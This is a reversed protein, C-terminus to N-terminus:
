APPTIAASIAALLGECAPLLIHYVAEFGAEDGFYPDPVDLRADDAPLHALAPDFQRMLRISREPCGSRILDARNKRDMALFLDFRRPDADRDYQRAISPLHVGHQAANALTRPDPRQGVHWNGTGCSDVTCRGALGRQAALHLFLGEALPSRCINGLCVFCLAYPRHPDAPPPLTPTNM